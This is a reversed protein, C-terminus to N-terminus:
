QQLMHLQWLDKRSGQLFPQLTLRGTRGISFELYHLERFKERTDESALIEFGHDRMMLIGKAHIALETYLRLYCLLDALVPGQFRERLEFGPVQPTEAPLTRMQIERAVAVEEALREGALLAAIMQTRQLAVACQAALASAILEDHM